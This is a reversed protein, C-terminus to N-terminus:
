LEKEDYELLTCIYKYIASFAAMTVLVAALLFGNAAQALQKLLQIVIYVAANIPLVGSVILVWLLIAAFILIAYVYERKKAKKMRGISMAYNFAESNKFYRRLQGTSIMLGFSYAAFYLLNFLGLKTFSLSSVKVIMDLIDFTEDGDSMFASYLELKLALLMLLYFVIFMATYLVAAMLFRANVLDRRKVPLISWLKESHYKLENNFLMPVFFGGILLPCYLGGVPSIFFGIAACFLFLMILMTRMGNKGGNMTILDVRIIDLIKKM